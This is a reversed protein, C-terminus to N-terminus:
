LRAQEFAYAAQLVRQEDWARGVIQLGVPLVSGDDEIEGCPVSIAPLGTLNFPATFRTLQPARSAADATSLRPAAVPTSPLILLDYDKFFQAFWHRSSSQIRRAQAYAVASYGAGMELRKRVDVGFNEPASQLRQSHYAAADCVVMLGNAKAMEHMEPIPAAIVQAGLNTFVQAAQQVAKLVAADAEDFFEGSALAVRWGQVGAQLDSLYDAVPQDQSYADQLDYGAMAQLLLAADRVSRALPGVHDLNWSLPIVGRFSVRGYTPKLGVM